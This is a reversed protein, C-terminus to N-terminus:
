PDVEGGTTTGENNEAHMLRCFEELTLEDVSDCVRRQTWFLLGQPTQKEYSGTENNFKYGQEVLFNRREWLAFIRQRPM